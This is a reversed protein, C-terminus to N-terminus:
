WLPREMRRHAVIKGFSNTYTSPREATIVFGLRAYLAEARPNTVAVDLVTRHSGQQQAVEILHQALAAGIGRSRWAEAVGFHALVAEEKAPPQIIKEAQLGCRIVSGSGWGYAGVIQRTAHLLFNISTHGTFTAGIGVIQGDVLAVRHNQWGFEGRGDVFARHLFHTAHRNPRTFTYDFAAPGSSYILPVATEVDEAQAPRFTIEIM